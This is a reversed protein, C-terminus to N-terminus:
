RRSGAVQSVALLKKNAREVPVKWHVAVGSVYRADVTDFERYGNALQDRYVVIFKEIRALLHNSGLIVEVGNHLVLSWEGSESEMLSKIRLESPELAQRLTEYVRMARAGTAHHCSLQPLGTGSNGGGGVISGTNNLFMDDGWRAVLSQNLVRLYLTGPWEKRAEVGRVWSVSQLSGVLQEM